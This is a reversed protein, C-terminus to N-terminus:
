SRHRPEFASVLATAVALDDWGADPRIKFRSLFRLLVAIISLATFTWVLANVLPGQNEAEM